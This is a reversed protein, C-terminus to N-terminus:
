CRLSNTLLDARQFHFTRLSRFYFPYTNRNPDFVPLISDQTALALDLFEDPIPDRCDVYDPATLVLSGFISCILLLKTLCHTQKM